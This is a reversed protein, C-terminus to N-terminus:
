PQDNKTDQAYPNTLKHFAHLDIDCVLMGVNHLSAVVQGGPSVVATMAQEHKGNCSLICWTRHILCQAKVISIWQDWYDCEYNATKAKMGFGVSATVIDAGAAWGWAGPQIVEFCEMMVIRPDVGDDGVFLHPPGLGPKFGKEIYHSELVFKRHWDRVKGQHLMAVSKYHNPGDEENVGVVVRLKDPHVGQSENDIQVALSELRTRDYFAQPNGYFPLFSSPLVLLRAGAARAAKTLDLLEDRGSRKSLTTATAIRM